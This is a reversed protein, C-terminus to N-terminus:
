TLPKEATESPLITRITDSFSAVRSSVSIVLSPSKEVFIIGNTLRDAPPIKGISLGIVPLCDYKDLIGETLEM